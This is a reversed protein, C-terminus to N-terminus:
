SITQNSTRKMADKVSVDNGVLIKRKSTGPAGNMHIKVLKWKAMGKAPGCSRAPVTAKTIGTPGTTFQDVARWQVMESVFGISSVDQLSINGVEGPM